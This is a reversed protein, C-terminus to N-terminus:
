GSRGVGKELKRPMTKKSIRFQCTRFRSLAVVLRTQPCIAKPTSRPIMRNAITSIRSTSAVQAVGQPRRKPPCGSQSFPMRAGCSDLLHCLIVLGGRITAPAAEAASIPASAEARMEMSFLDQLRLSFPLWADFRLSGAPFQKMSRKSPLEWFSHFPPQPWLFAWKCERSLSLKSSRCKV